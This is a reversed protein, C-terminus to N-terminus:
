KFRKMLYEDDKNENLFEVVHYKLFSEKLYPQIKRLTDFDKADLAKDVEKKLDYQSMKSYDKPALQKEKSQKIIQEIDGEETPPKGIFEEIINDLIEDKHEELFLEQINNHKVFIRFFADIHTDLFDYMFEKIEEISQERKIMLEIEEQFYKNDQPHIWKDANKAAIKSIVKVDYKNEGENLKKMNYQKNLNESIKLASEHGLQKARRLFIKTVPWSDGKISKAALYRRFAKNKDTILKCMTEALKKEEWSYGHAKKIIDNIRMLDKQEVGIGLDHIPDSDETFKENIYEKIEKKKNAVSSYTNEPTHRLMRADAGADLLIKVIEANGYKSAISLAFDNNLHIDAGANILYKVFNIKNYRACIWLYDIERASPYATKKIWKRIEYILGMDMDSIPDSEESFKEHLKSVGSRVPYKPKLTFRPKPKSNQRSTKLPIMTKKKNCGCGELLPNMIYSEDFYTEIYKEKIEEINKEYMRNPYYGLMNLINEKNHIYYYWERGTAHTEIKYDLQKESMKHHPDIRKILRILSNYKDNM